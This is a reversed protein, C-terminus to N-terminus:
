VAQKSHLPTSNPGIWVRKDKGEAEKKKKSDEVKKWLSAIKSTAPTPAHAPTHLSSNSNWRAGPGLTESKLSQNSKSSRVGTAPKPTAESRPLSGARGRGVSAVVKKSLPAAPIGTAGSITKKKVPIQKKASSNTFVPIGSSVQPEDKTFTGQRQLPPPPKPSKSKNAPSRSVVPIHSRVKKRGRVSKVELPKVVVPKPKDDASGEADNEYKEDDSENEEENACESTMPVTGTTSTVDPIEASIIAPADLTQTRFREKDALRKERPSLPVPIQEDGLTRTRFREKDVLRRQKPTMKKPKAPSSPEVPPEAIESDLNVDADLSSDRSSKDGTITYTNFRDKLMQRKMKPTLRPTLSSPQESEALTVDESGPPSDAVESTISACSLISNELEMVEDMGSPPKISDINNWSLPPLLSRPKRRDTESVSATLSLLSGMCSPPRVAELDVSHLSSEMELNSIIGVKGSELHILPAHGSEELSKYSSILPATLSISPFSPSTDSAGGDDAPGAGMAGGVSPNVGNKTKPMGSTICQELLVQESLTVQDETWEGSLSGTSPQRSLVTVAEEVDPDLSSLPSSKDDPVPSMAQCRNPKSNIEAVDHYGEKTSDDKVRQTLQQVPKPVVNPLNPSQSQRQPLLSTKVPMPLVTAVKTPKKINSNNPTLRAQPMGSQICEALINDHDSDDSLACLNSLDSHSTAHSINAPTDETVFVKTCDDLVESDPISSKTPPSARTLAAKVPIGSPRQTPACRVVPPTKSTNRRFSNSNQMGINICAALMDDDEEEDVPALDSTPDSMDCKRDGEMPPEDDFTLDSLSTATSFQVPTSEEKFVSVREEFVSVPKAPAPIPVPPKISHPSPPVTQTPSDPLESPSVMGSTMRSFESVVSSRDDPPEVSSLSGLSSCRSFMLPTEFTVVKGERTEEKAQNSTPVNNINMNDEHTLSGVPSIAGSKTEVSKNAADQTCLDSLSTATSFNYPTGETCYTKPKEPDEEAYRLSYDTPQDLDTEAYANSSDAPAKDTERYKLSYDTPQDLDTEAYDVVEKEQEPYKLSYNVPQEAQAAIAPTTDQKSFNRRYTVPQETEGVTPQTEEDSYKLSYNVPQETQGVTPQTEHESYKLGYNVPQDSTVSSEELTLREILAEPKEEEKRRAPALPKPESELDHRKSPGPIQLSGSRHCVTSRQSRDFVNESQTSTVSERSDWREVAEINDCTETLTSDLEQELARRKRVLLSPLGRSARDMVDAEPRAAMLNKLAASSGMSIMKHKSHVLSRLMPVAGLEWLTRQDQPCRASLNWLTGCANSVVTLSASKLQQLLLPICNHERLIARYDERVAIHSSINRLIGGANEVIALTKSPADLFRLMEVLFKLSGKVACIDAKNMNCHASLNWLASLVSKITSEKKVDMATVMLATCADVQRLAQKSQADARWSLNRLVSATVQRLDESPSQLQGVLAVLFGRMSCLLAKNNCDGFTLNTLAMGGYRRVTVCDYNSSEAGHAENDVQILCAIAQLAGLQCMAERHDGDFSLKMLAAIHVCPHPDEQGPESQFSTLNSCYEQIHEVLRLVRAERRGKKDDTHCHVLNHLAQAACRRVAPSEQGGHVLQVLLPLCGSQRMALCSEPSNSLSLLTRTMESRDQSGLMSLLSYVMEVKAGLQHTSYSRPGMSQLEEQPNNAVPGVSNWLNFDTPAWKHTPDGPSMSVSTEPTTRREDQEKTEAATVEEKNPWSLLRALVAEGSKNPEESRSYDYPPSYPTITSISSPSTYSTVSYASEPSILFSPDLPSYFNSPSTVSPHSTVSPNSSRPSSLTRPPIPANQHFPPTPPMPINRIEEPSLVNVVPTNPTRPTSGLSSMLLQRLPTRPPTRLLSRPSASPPARPSTGPLSKPSESRPPSTSIESDTSTASKSWIYSGDSDSDSDSDSTNEEINEKVPETTNATTLHRGILLGHRRRSEEIEGETSERILKSSKEIRSRILADLEASTYENVRKRKKNNNVNVQANEGSAQANKGSVGAIDENNEPANEGEREGKAEREQKKREAEKEERQSERERRRRRRIRRRERKEERKEERKKVIDQLYVSEKIRDGLYVDPDNDTSDLLPTDLQRQLLRTEQTLSRVRTLLEEYSSVPLTM